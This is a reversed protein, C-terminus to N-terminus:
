ESMQPPSVKGIPFLDDAVCRNPILITRVLLLYCAIPKYQDGQGRRPGQDERSGTQFIHGM